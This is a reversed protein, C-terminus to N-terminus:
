PYMGKPLTQFICMLLLLYKLTSPLKPLQHSYYPMLKLSLCTLKSPLNHLPQNFAPGFSLYTLNPPYQLIEQNFLGSFGLHTLTKPLTEIEIKNKLSVCLLHTIHPFQHVISASTEVYITVRKIDKYINMAQSGVACKMDKCVHVSVITHASHSVRSLAVNSKHDLFNCFDLQLLTTSLTDLDYTNM